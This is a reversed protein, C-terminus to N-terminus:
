VTVVVTLEDSTDANAAGEHEGVVQRSGAFPPPQAPAGVGGAGGTRKGGAQARADQGSLDSSMRARM